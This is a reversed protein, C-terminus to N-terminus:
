VKNSYHVRSEPRLVVIDVHIRVHVSGWSGGANGQSIACTDNDPQHCVYGVQDILGVVTGLQVIQAMCALMYRYARYISLLFDHM